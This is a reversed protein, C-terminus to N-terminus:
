PSRISATTVVTQVFPREREGSVRKWATELGYPGANIADTEEVKSGRSRCIVLAFM